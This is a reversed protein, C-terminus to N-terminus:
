PRPPYGPLAEVKGYEPFDGAEVRSGLLHAAMSALFFSFTLRDAAASVEFCGKLDHLGILSDPGIQQEHQGRRRLFRDDDGAGLGARAFDVVQELRAMVMACVPALTTM